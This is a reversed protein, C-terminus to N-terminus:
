PVENWDDPLPLAGWDAPPRWKEWGTPWPQEALVREGEARVALAESRDAFLGLRIAEEYEDEDKWHWRGDPEVVIDLAWDATDFRDGNVVLPAQLNIYWCTLSWDRDWCLEVTHRDGPRMFRLVPGKDWVFDSPPTGAVWDELYGKGPLRPLGKGVSGPHCYIGHRGNWDGVYRCPFCFRVQERFVSRFLVHDGVDM